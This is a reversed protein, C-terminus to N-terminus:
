NPLIAGTPGMSMAMVDAHTDIMHQLLLTERSLLHIERALMEPIGTLSLLAQKDENSVQLAIAVMLALSLADEPLRDLRLKQRSAKGLLEVYELLRPRIRHALEAAIKIGGNVLPFTEVTGSLYRHHHHLELVRFRQAGVTTINMRGDDMHEVRVIRAATGVMYPIASDGVERGEKILLVGFPIDEKVCRDVMERYRPEFIHLPLVMGPFLVVHNLPFLPLEMITAQQQALARRSRRDTIRRSQEVTM